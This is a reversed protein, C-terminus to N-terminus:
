RDDQLARHRLHQPRRTQREQRLDHAHGLGGDYTTRKSYAPDFGDDMLSEILARAMKAQQAQQLPQQTNGQFWASSYNMSPDLWLRYFDNGLDYHAHINDRSQRRTNRRWAHRIQYALRGWWHGFVMDDLAARNRLLVRLLTTLYGTEQAGYLRQWVVIIATALSLLLSPIQAVLGDGITLLAYQKFAAGFSMDQMLAGIAVGGVMNIIPMQGRM